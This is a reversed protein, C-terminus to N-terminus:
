TELSLIKQYLSRIQNRGRLRAKSFALLSAGSRRQMLVRAKLDCNLIGGNVLMTMVDSVSPYGLKVILDKAEEAREIQRHNFQLKNEEVTTILVEVSESTNWIHLNGRRKFKIVRSVTEIKFCKKEYSVKAKNHVEALSLINAIATPCYYVQGFEKFDGIQNVSIFGGMGYIKVPEEARRINNLLYPNVFV